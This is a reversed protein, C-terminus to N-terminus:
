ATLCVNLAASRRVCKVVLRTRRITPRVLLCTKFRFGFVYALSVTMPAFTSLLCCSVPKNPQSLVGVLGSQKRCLKGQRMEGVPFQKGPSGRCLRSLLSLWKGGLVKYGFFM